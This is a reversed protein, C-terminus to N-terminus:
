AGCGRYALLTGVIRDRGLRARVSFNSGLEITARGGSTGGMGIIWIPLSELERRSGYPMDHPYLVDDVEHCFPIGV